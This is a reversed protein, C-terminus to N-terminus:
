SHGQAGHRVQPLGRCSRTHGRRGRGVYRQTDLESMENRITASSLPIQSVTTLFKSGVPEGSAIYADVVSKLIEKKRESLEMGSAEKGEAPLRKGTERSVKASERKM